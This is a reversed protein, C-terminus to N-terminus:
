DTELTGCLGVRLGVFLSVFLGVIFFPGGVLSHRFM